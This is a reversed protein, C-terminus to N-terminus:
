ECEKYNGMEQKLDFINEEWQLIFLLFLLMKGDKFIKFFKGMLDNIEWKM